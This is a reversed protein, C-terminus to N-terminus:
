TSDAPEAPGMPGAGIRPILKFRGDGLHEVRPEGRRVLWYLARCCRDRELAVRDAREAAPYTPRPRDPSRYLEGFGILRLLRLEAEPTAPEQARPRRPTRSMGRM